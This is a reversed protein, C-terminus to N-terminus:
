QVDDVMGIPECLDLLFRLGMAAVQVAEARMAPLNKPSPRRKVVNWLEDVEERLIAYGEHPSHMPAYRTQARELEQLTAVLVSRLRDRALARDVVDRDDDM